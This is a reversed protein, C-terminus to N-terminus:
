EKVQKFFGWVPHKDLQESQHVDAVVADGAITGSAWVIKVM